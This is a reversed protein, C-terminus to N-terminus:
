SGRTVVLGFCTAAFGDISLKLHRSEGGFHARM